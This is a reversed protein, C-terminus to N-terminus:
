PNKLLFTFIKESNEAMKFWNEAEINNKEV